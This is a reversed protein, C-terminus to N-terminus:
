RVGLSISCSVPPERTAVWKCLVYNSSSPGDDVEFACDQMGHAGLTPDDNPGSNAHGTNCESYMDLSWLM